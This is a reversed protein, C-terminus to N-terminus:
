EVDQWGWPATATADRERGSRFQEKHDGIHIFLDFLGGTGAETPPAPSCRPGDATSGRKLSKM